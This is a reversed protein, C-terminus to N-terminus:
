IGTNENHKGSLICQKTFSAVGFAQMCKENKIFDIEYKM